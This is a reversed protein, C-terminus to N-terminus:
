IDLLNKKPTQVNCPRILVSANIGKRVARLQAGNDGRM